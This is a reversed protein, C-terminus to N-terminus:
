CVANSSGVARPGFYKEAPDPEKKQGDTVGMKARAGSSMGFREEYARKQTILAATMKDPAQQFRAELWCWTAFGPSDVLFLPGMEYCVPAYQEWLKAAAGKLYEPKVPEGEAVPEGTRRRDPNKDFAGTAELISTPKKPRAM